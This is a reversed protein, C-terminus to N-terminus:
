SPLVVGGRFGRDRVKRVLLRVPFDVQDNVLDCQVQEVVHVTVSTM